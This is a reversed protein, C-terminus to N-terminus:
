NALTLVFVINAGANKLAHAAESATAGTTLVDDIILLNKGSLNIHQAVSFSGRVNTFREFPELGTQTKTHRHRLLADNLLDKKFEEAIHKGLIHAQNFERERLKAKSLPIPVIFDLYEMPLNYEKIYEIMIKSLPEGLHEKNKYKFAHILEKIPGTYVCPSFARDFHLNTKRCSPCINKHIEKKELHRGCSVCFPPINKKIKNLCSGCVLSDLSPNRIKTKCSLCVKPYIISVLSDVFRALM